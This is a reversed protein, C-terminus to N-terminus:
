DKPLLVQGELVRASFELELGSKWEGANYKALLRHTAQFVVVIEPGFAYLESASDLAQREIQNYDAEWTQLDLGRMVGAGRLALTLLQTPTDGLM